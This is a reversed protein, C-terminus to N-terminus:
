IRKVSQRPPDSFYTGVIDSEITKADKLMWFPEALKLPDLAQYREPSLESTAM